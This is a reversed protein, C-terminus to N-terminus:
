LYYRRKTTNTYREHQWNLVLDCHFLELNKHSMQLINSDLMTWDRKNRFILCCLEAKMITQCYIWTKFCLKCRNQGIYSQILLFILLFSLNSEIRTRVTGDIEGFNRPSGRVNGFALVIVKDLSFYIDSHTSFIIM